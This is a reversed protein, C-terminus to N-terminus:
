AFKSCIQLNSPTKYLFINEHRTLFYQYCYSISFLNKKRNQKQNLTVEWTKNIDSPIKKQINIIKKSLTNKTGMYVKRVNLAVPHTVIILFTWAIMTSWTRTQPNMESKAAPLSSILIWFSPFFLELRKGDGNGATLQQSKLAANSAKFRQHQVLSWFRCKNETLQGKLM